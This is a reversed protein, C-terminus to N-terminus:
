YISLVVYGEDYSSYSDVIVLVEDGADVRQTLRSTLGSGSDDNCGLSAGECGDRLELTTDGPSGDTTFTYTGDEPSTWRYVLERGTGGNCDYLNDGEAQNGTAIGDGTVSGLDVDWCADPGGEAASADDGVLVVATDSEVPWTHDWDFGDFSKSGDGSSGGVCGVLSTAVLVRGWGM